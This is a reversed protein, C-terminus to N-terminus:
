RKPTRCRCDPAYGYARNRNPRIGRLQLRKKSDRPSVREAEILILGVQGVDFDDLALAHLDGEEGIGIGGVPQRQLSPRAGRNGIDALREDGLLHRKGLLLGVEHKNRHVPAVLVAVGDVRLLAAGRLKQGVEARVDDDPHM